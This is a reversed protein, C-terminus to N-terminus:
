IFLKVAFEGIFVLMNWLSIILWVIDIFIWTCAFIFREFVHYDAFTQSYIGYHIPIMIIYGLPTLTLAFAGLIHWMMDVVKDKFTEFKIKM